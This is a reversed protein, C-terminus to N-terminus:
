KKAKFRKSADDENSYVSVFLRNVGVFNSELFYKFENTKNEDESKTKYENGYVSRGFGKNLLKSLKQNDRKQLILVPFYLKTGKITFFFNNANDDNNIENKNGAASSFM